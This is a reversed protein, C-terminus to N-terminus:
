PASFFFNLLSVVIDTWVDKKVKIPSAWAWTGLFGGGGQDVGRGKRDMRSELLISPDHDISSPRVRTEPRPVRRHCNNKPRKRENTACSTPASRLSSSHRASHVGRPPILFLRLSCGTVGGYLMAHLMKRGAGNEERATERRTGGIRLCPHHSLHYLCTASM